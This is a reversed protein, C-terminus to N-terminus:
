RRPARVAPEQRQDSPELPQAAVIAGGPPAYAEFLGRIIVTVLPGLVIGLLGFVSVGGLLSIFMLLGNMQARGSLIAPRLFNDISAVITAGLVALVAGRVVEGTVVLWLSAPVWVVWTGVFPLLALFGMIVGWFVPAGLGLVAFALGGALGQLSAILLGAAISAYVLDRTQRIVLERRLEDFPLARRVDRMIADGDRLFFFLALLTVVLQFLVVVIDALLGGARAALFGGGKSIVGEILTSLDLTQTGPILFRIRDWGQELVALQEAVSDRNLASVAARSEQVFARLILLGPGIILLTVVATGLAAARARGHRPVLTVYWPHVFVALVAAWGLPALFPTLMRFFVYGLLLVVAYFYVTAVRARERTEPGPVTGGPADYGDAGGMVYRGRSCARSSGRSRVRVRLGVMGRRPPYNVRAASTLYDSEQHFCGKGLELAVEALRTLGRIASVRDDDRAVASHVYEFAARRGVIMREGSQLTHEPGHRQCALMHRQTFPDTFTEGRLVTTTSAPGSLAAM